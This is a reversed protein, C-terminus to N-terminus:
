LDKYISYLKDAMAEISYEEARKRCVGAMSKRLGDDSLLGDIKSSLAEHDRHPFLYRDDLLEEAMGVRTSLCPTGSAFAQLLVVAQTEMESPLVFVDAAAFAQPVLEEPLYGTFLVRGDGAALTKLRGELEGEGAIVFVADSKSGLAARVFTEPDKKHQLRGVYLVVDRGEAIGYRELFGGYDNKPNFRATNVGNHVVEIPKKIGRKLLEGRLWESIAVVLDCGNYLQILYGWTMMTAPKGLLSDVPLVAGFVAAPDTHFTGVLPLDLDRAIKVGYYFMNYPTHNHIVDFGTREVREELGGSSLALKYQPHLPSPIGPVYVVDEHRIPGFVIDEWRKRLHHLEYLTAAVGNTHPPYTGTFNAIKM